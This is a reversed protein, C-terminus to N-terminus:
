LPKINLPSENLRQLNFGIMNGCFSCRFGYLMKDMRYLGSKCPVQTQTCYPQWGDYWSGLKAEKLKNLKEEESLSINYAITNM